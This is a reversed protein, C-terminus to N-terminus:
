SRDDGDPEVAPPAVTLRVVSATAGRTEMVEASAGPLEARDGVAALKGLKRTLLGSLTDVDGAVLPLGLQEVVTAIPTRGQVLYQGSGAPVIDPQEADFEDEVNGVILELVNELTVIGIVTGYEDVVLMLHQRIAQFQRLLRSATVSEPVYHPPRMIERLEDATQPSHNVFDKLHAVGVVNDLSTDCVPFRTHQTRRITERWQETGANVDLIEVENRPVMIRCCPTDDFEFVARILQHEAKTVEGVDHSHAIMALLEAESHIHGHEGAAEAGLLRAFAQSATDLVRLFPYSVVYFWKLVPACWRLIEAGNRIAVLKPGQEGLVLHAATITSFALTFAIAHVARESGIGVAHVVPEILRAIAPEGVWGLGLSALTIGLQCAGLSADLRRHLWLATGAFTRGEEAALELQVIRSTVLAFEAAVFFGNIAVLAVAVAILLLDASM